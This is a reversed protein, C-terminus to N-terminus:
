ELDSRSVIAHTVITVYEGFYPRGIQGLKRRRLHATLSPRQRKADDALLHSVANYRASALSLNYTGLTGYEYRVRWYPASSSKVVGRAGGDM